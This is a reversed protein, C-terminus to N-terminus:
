TDECTPEKKKKAKKKRWKNAHGAKIIMKGEDGKGSRIRCNEQRREKMLPTKREKQKNTKELEEIEKRM